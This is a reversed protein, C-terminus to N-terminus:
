SDPFAATPPTFNSTYRAIGKTIRLDDIQGNWERGATGPDRGVSQNTGGGCTSSSTVTSGVQTGNIFLLFNVGSRVYAWHFWISTPVTGVAGSDGFNSGGSDGCFGRLGGSQTFVTPGRDSGSGDRGTFLIMLAGPGATKAWGEVTFDGSGMDFATSATVTLYGTSNTMAGTGFKPLTNTIQANSTAVVTKPSSSNDTFTTSGASGDCHLLLSVNAYFPDTGGGGGAPAGFFAPGTTFM